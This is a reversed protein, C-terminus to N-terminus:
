PHQDVIGNLKKPTGGDSEKIREAEPIDLNAIPQQPVQVAGFMAQLSTPTKAKLIFFLDLEVEKFQMTVNRQCPSFHSVEQM